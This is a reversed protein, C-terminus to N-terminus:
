AATHHHTLDVVQVDEPVEIVHNVTEQGVMALGNGGMFSEYREAATVGSEDPQHMEVSWFMDNPSNYRLM